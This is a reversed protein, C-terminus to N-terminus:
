FTVILPFTKWPGEVTSVGYTGLAEGLDHLTARESARVAARVVPPSNETRSIKREMFFQNTTIWTIYWVLKFNYNWSVWNCWYYIVNQNDNEWNFDHQSHHSQVTESYLHVLTLSPYAMLSREESWSKATRVRRGCENHRQYINLSICHDGYLISYQCFYISFRSCIAAAGHQQIQRLLYTLLICWMFIPHVPSDGKPLPM